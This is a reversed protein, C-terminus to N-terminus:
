RTAIVFEEFACGKQPAKTFKIQGAVMLRYEGAHVGAFLYRGRIDTVSRLEGGGSVATLIVPVGPVPTGDRSDRVDGAVSPASPKLAIARLFTLDEAAEEVTATRTCISTWLAEGGDPSSHAYM